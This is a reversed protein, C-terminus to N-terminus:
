DATVEQDRDRVRRQLRDLVQELAAALLLLQAVLVEGAARAVQEVPDDVVGEVVAERHQALDPVLEVRELVLDELAAALVDDAVNRVDLLLDDVEALHDAGLARHEAIELVRPLAKERRRAALELDVEVVDGVRVLPDPVHELVVLLDDLPQLVRVLGDDRVAEVVDEAHQGHDADDEQRQGQDGADEPHIDADGVLALDRAEPDDEAHHDDHQEPHDGEEPAAAPKSGGCVGTMHRVGGSRLMRRAATRRVSEPPTALSRIQAGQRRSYTFSAEFSAPSSHRNQTAAPSSSSSAFRM